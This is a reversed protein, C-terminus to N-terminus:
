GEGAEGRKELAAKEAAIANTLSMSHRHFIWSFRLRLTKSFNPRLLLMQKVLELPKPFYQFVKNTNAKQILLKGPMGKFCKWLWQHSRFYECSFRFSVSSVSTLLSFGNTGLVRQTLFRMRSAFRLGPRWSSQCGM